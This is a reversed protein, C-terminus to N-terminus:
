SIVQIQDKSAATTITARCMPCKTTSKLLRESCGQCLCYHGCPVLVVTKVECMCIVCDDDETDEYIKAVELKHSIEEEGTLIQIDKKNIRYFYKRAPGRAFKVSNPPVSYRRGEQRIDRPFQCNANNHYGPSTIRIRLRSGIKVCELYVRSNSSRTLNPDGSSNSTDAM